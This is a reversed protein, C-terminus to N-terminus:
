LFHFVRLAHEFFRLSFAERELAATGKIFLLLPLVIPRPKLTLQKFERLPNKGAIKAGSGISAVFKALKSGDTTVMFSFLRVASWSRATNVTSRGSQM